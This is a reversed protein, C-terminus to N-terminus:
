KELVLEARYSLIDIWEYKEFKVWDLCYKISKIKTERFDFLATHNILDNFFKVCLSDTFTNLKSPSTFCKCLM